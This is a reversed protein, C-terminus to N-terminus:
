GERSIPAGDHQVYVRCGGKNTTLDLATMSSSPELMKSKGLLMKNMLEAKM